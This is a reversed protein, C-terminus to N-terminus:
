RSRGGRAAHAARWKQYDAAGTLALFGALVLAGGAGGSLLLVPTSMNQAGVLDAMWLGMAIWILGLVISAIGSRVTGPTTGSTTRLGGYVFLLGALPTGIGRFNGYMQYRLVVLVFCLVGTVVWIIGAWQVSVPFAVRSAAVEQAQGYQLEKWRQYDFSV